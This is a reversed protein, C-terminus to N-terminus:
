KRKGQQEPKPAPKQPVEEGADDVVVFCKNKIHGHLPGDVEDGSFNTMRLATHSEPVDVVKGKPFDIGEIVKHADLEDIEATREAVREDKWKKISEMKRQVVIPHDEKEIQYLYGDACGAPNITAILGDLIRKRQKESVGQYIVKM